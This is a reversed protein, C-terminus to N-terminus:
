LSVLLFQVRDYLKSSSFKGEIFKEGRGGGRGRGRYFNNERVLREGSSTIFVGEDDSSPEAKLKGAVTSTKSAPGGGLILKLHKCMM